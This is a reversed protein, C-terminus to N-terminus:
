ELDRIREKFRPYIRQVNFDDSLDLFLGMQRLREKLATLNGQAAMQAESEPRFDPPRDILIGFRERLFRLFDSLLVPMPELQDKLERGVRMGSFPRYEPLVVCLQVLTELLPHSLAYRWTTRHRLSGSLIGDDRELGGINWYWRTYAEVGRKRQVEVLVEMLRDFDRTYTGNAETTAAEEQEPDSTESWAKHIEALEMGAATEVQLDNRLKPLQVLYDSGEREEFRSKLMTSREVFRDLTRLTLSSRFFHEIGELDRAVCQAAMETSVSRRDETLDCYLQLPEANSEVGTKMDNPVKGTAVLQNTAAILRLTYAFLELALLAILHRALALTPMRSAYAAVFCQVDRVLARAAEPLAPAPPPPFRRPRPQVARFGDVYYMSALIETDLLTKGDYHGELDGGPSLAVGHSFAERLLAALPPETEARGSVVHAWTVKDGNTRFMLDFLFRHVNRHRSSQAPFAPKYTLFSLPVLYIIQEGGKGSRGIRGIKAFSTRSWKHALRLGVTDEFGAVCDHEAFARAYRLTDTAETGKGRERGRSRILYFLGTLVMEPDFDNM